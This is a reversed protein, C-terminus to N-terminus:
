QGWGVSACNWFPRSCSTSLTMMMMMAINKMMMIIIMAITMTVLFGVLTSYEHVLLFDDDCDDFDCVIDM